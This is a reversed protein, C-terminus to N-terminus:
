FDRGVFLRLGILLLLGNVFLGALLSTWIPEGLLFYDLARMQYFISLHRIPAYLGPLSLLVGALGTIVGATVPERNLVSVACGLLYYSNIWILTLLLASILKPWDASLGIVVSAIWTAALGALSFILLLLTGAAVKGLYGQRRSIPRTLYFGMTRRSVEGAFQSAAMIIGLLAGAQYLNKAHWQSWLYVSYDKFIFLMERTIEYQALLDLLESPIEAVIDALYSFTVTVIVALSVGFLLGIVMIWRMQNLEKFILTKFRM